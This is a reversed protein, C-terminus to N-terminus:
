AGGPAPVWACLVADMTLERRAVLHGGEPVRQLTAELLPREEWGFRIEFERQVSAPDPPACPGAGPTVVVLAGLAPAVEEFWDPDVTVGDPRLDRTEMRLVSLLQSESLASSDSWVAVPGDVGARALDSALGPADLGLGLPEGGVPFREGIWPEPLPSRGTLWGSVSGRPLNPHPTSRAITPLAVLGALAVALAAGVARPSRTAARDALAGSLVAVAPLLPVTYFVQRKAPLSFLLLGGAVFWAVDRARAGLRGLLGAALAGWGLVGGVLGLQTDPWLVLYHAWYLLLPPRVEDFAGQAGIEGQLQPLIEAIYRPVFFLVYWWGAIAAVIGAALGLRGVLARWEGRRRAISLLVPAALFPAAGLRDALLGMGVFVAMAITPRLRRLDDSAVWAALAAVACAAAGLNPEFRHGADAVAPYALAFVVALPATWRGGAARALSVVAAVLLVAWPLQAAVMAGYGGGLALAVVGPLLALPPYYADVTFVRMQEWPTTGWGFVIETVGEVLAFEDRMGSPIEAGGM